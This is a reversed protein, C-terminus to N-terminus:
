KIKDARVLTLFLGLRRGTEAFKEFEVPKTLCTICGPKYCLEIEGPDDTTTLMIVPLPGTKVAAAAFIAALRLKLGHLDTFTNNGM